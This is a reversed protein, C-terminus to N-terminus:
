PPGPPRTTALVVWHNQGIVFLPRQIANQLRPLDQHRYLLLPDAGAEIRRRLEAEDILRGGPGELSVGYRLEGPGACLTVTRGLYVAADSFLTGYSVLEQEPRLIPRAMEVVSKTSKIELKTAVADAVPFVVFSVVTLGALATRVSGIVAAGSVMIAAAFLLVILGPRWGGMAEKFREIELEAPFLDNRSMAVLLMGVAAIMGASILFGLRDAPTPGHIAKRVREAALIALAPFLPLIYGPLKSSSLSFFVFTVAVWIALFRAAGDRDKRLGALSILVPGIWVWVGILAVPLFYWIPGTRHHVITTFRLFHEQVFYFDLFGPARNSVLVHWPVVMALFIAIGLPDLVIKILDFRRSIAIWILGIIGPLVAGVLGKTMVAAAAATYMAILWRRRTDPSVAQVAEFFAILTATVFCALLIDLTVVRSSVYWIAMTGLIIAALLGTQRSFWRAGAGYAMACCCLGSVLPVLRVSGETPGFLAMVSAQMWYFLPPKELYIFGNFRPLVFDGSVLMERPIEVYRAESPVQLPRWHLGFAYLACLGAFIALAAVATPIRTV